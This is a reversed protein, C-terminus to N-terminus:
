QGRKAHKRGVILLTSIATVTTITVYGVVLVIDNWVSM